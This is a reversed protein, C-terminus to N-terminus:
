FETLDILLCEGGGKLTQTIGSQSKYFKQLAQKWNVPMLGSFKRISLRKSSKAQKKNIKINLRPVFNDAYEAGAPDPYPGTIPKFPPSSIMGTSLGNAENGNTANCVAV